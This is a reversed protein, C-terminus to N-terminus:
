PGKHYCLYMGGGGGFAFAAGSTEWVLSLYPEINYTTVGNPIGGSGHDPSILQVTGNGSGGVYGKLVITGATKNFIDVTIRKGMYNTETVTWPAETPPSFATRYPAHGVLFHIGDVTKPYTLNGASGGSSTNIMGILLPNNYGTLTSYGTGNEDKGQVKTLPGTTGFAMMGLILDKYDDAFNFTVNQATDAYAEFTSQTWLRPLPITMGPFISILDTVGPFKIHVLGTANPMVQIFRFAIGCDFLKKTTTLAHTKIDNM